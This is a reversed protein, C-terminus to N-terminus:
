GLLHTSHQYLLSLLQRDVFGPQGPDTRPLMQLAAWPTASTVDDNSAVVQPCHLCLPFGVHTIKCGMMTFEPLIPWRVASLNSPPSQVSSSGTISVKPTAAGRLRQLERSLWRCFISFTYMACWTIHSMLLHSTASIGRQLLATSIRLLFLSLSEQPFRPYFYSYLAIWSCPISHLKFGQRSTCPLLHYFFLLHLLVDM